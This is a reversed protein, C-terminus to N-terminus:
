EQKNKKDQTYLLAEWNRFIDIKASIIIETIWLIHSDNLKKANWNYIKMSFQFWSPYIQQPGYWVFVNEWMQLVLYISWRMKAADCYKKWLSVRGSMDYFWLYNSTCNTFYLKFSARNREQTGTVESPGLLPWLSSLIMLSLSWAVMTGINQM